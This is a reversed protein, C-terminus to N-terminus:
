QAVEDLEKAFPAVKEKIRQMDASDKELSYTLVERNEVVMRGNVITTLVNAANAQFLLTAYSDYDPVMNPAKTDVIIMDALKGKELSGIKDEMHLARAGGMTAMWVVDRPVMITRDNHKLRQLRSAYGMVDFIDVQNSSMPGDTGLGIRVNEKLMLYSDAIGTAGKANAKPNHSVGADSKKIIAIDEADTHICHALVVRDSSNPTDVAVIKYGHHLWKKSTEITVLVVWNVELPPKVQIGLIYDPRM